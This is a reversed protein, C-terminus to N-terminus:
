GKANGPEKDGESPEAGDMLIDIISAIAEQAKGVGGKGNLAARFDNHIARADAPAGVERLLAAYAAALKAFRIKKPDKMMEVLDGLTIVDEIADCVSFVENENITYEKGGYEVGIVKVMISREHVDM